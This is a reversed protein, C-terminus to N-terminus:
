VSWALVSGGIKLSSIDLTRRSFIVVDMLCSKSTKYQSNLVRIAKKLDERNNDTKILSREAYKVFPCAMEVQM